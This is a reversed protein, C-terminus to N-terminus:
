STILVLRSDLFRRIQYEVGCTLGLISSVLLTSSLDWLCSADLVIELKVAIRSYQCCILHLQCCIGDEIM